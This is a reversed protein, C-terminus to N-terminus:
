SLVGKQGLLVFRSGDFEAHASQKLVLKDSYEFAEYWYNLISCNNSNVNCTPVIYCGSDKMLAAIPSITDHSDLYSGERSYVWSVSYGLEEFHRKWDTANLRQKSINIHQLILYDDHLKCNESKLSEIEKELTPIREAEASLKLLDSKLTDNETKVSYYDGDLNESIENSISRLHTELNSKNEVGMQLLSSDLRAMQDDTYSRQEQILRTIQNSLLTEQLLQLKNIEEEIVNQINACTLGSNQIYDMTKNRKKNPLLANLITFVAIILLLSCMVIAFVTIRGIDANSLVEITIEQSDPIQELLVTMQDLLVTAQDPLAQEQDRSEVLPTIEKVFETPLLVYEQSAPLDNNYITMNCAIYGDQSFPYGVQVTDDGIETFLIRSFTGDTNEIYADGYFSIVINLTSLEGNDDPRGLISFSHGATPLTIEFDNNDYEAVVLGSSLAIVTIITLTCVTLVKRHKM